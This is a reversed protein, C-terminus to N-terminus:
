KLNTTLAAAASAAVPANIKAILKGLHPEEIMEINGMTREKAPLGFPNGARCCFARTQGGAPNHRWAGDVQDFFSMSVVQDVIYPLERGTKAGELMPEYQGKDDQMLKGVFFVNKQSHQLHRLLSLMADALVGYAGRIDAVGRDTFARPQQMSWRKAAYSLESVSDFFINEYSTADFDPYRKKVDEYHAVSLLETNPLAPDPGTILAVVDATDLFTRLEISHGPWTQVSKFGGEYDLALTSDAPLTYLLSTKGCGTPGVILVSGRKSATARREDATVIKLPM